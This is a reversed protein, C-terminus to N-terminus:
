APVLDAFVVIDDTHSREGPDFAGGCTILRLGPHDLEGYVADTPFDAPDAVAVAVPGPCSRASPPSPPTILPPPGTRATQGRQDTWGAIPPWENGAAGARFLQSGPWM